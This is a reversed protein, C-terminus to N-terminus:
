AANWAPAFVTEAFAEITTTTTSRASRPQTPKVKGENLGRSMEVYLSALDETLGAAVLGKKAEEYSFQVYSLEPKGVAKGLVRTTEAMTVDRPGLLEQV